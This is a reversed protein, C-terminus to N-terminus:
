TQTGLIELSRAIILYGQRLRDLGFHENPAHICDTPLGLGLLVVESGSVKQLSAVIPISAGELIYSCPKDFVETFAQAVANVGTSDPTTSIAPGGGEHIHTSVKIGPPSQKELFSAVSKAITQPDQNAVLRCSIKASAIAPIVTKMGVGQFGGGIGNIELTPRLWNRELPLLNKEGGTADVGFEKKYEASNFQFDFSQKQAETLPTIADYFGPVTIRGSPDRLKSLIEVLAHNPNYALGGHSGSHLDTTTGTCTVELAVLGRLGLTVSPSQANKIGVDVIFLYDAALEKAKDILIAGLGASGVEEDGEIILKLNVPLKGFKQRLTKIAHFVYFCQGKNDQAGRAFVQNGEIRPEFPPTTWLDLPDVPQVDYHNYILVTPKDPGASLDHAFIVPHQKTEWTEVVLPIDVLYKKVWNACALVDPKHEPNSSISPISLYQKFEEIIANQNTYFDTKLMTLLDNM